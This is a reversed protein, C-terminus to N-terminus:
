SCLRSNDEVIDSIKCFFVLFANCLGTHLGGFMATNGGLL